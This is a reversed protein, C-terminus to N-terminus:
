CDGEFYDSEQKNKCVPERLIDKEKKKIEHSMLTAFPMIHVGHTTGFENLFLKVKLQM